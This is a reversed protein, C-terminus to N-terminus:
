LVRSVELGEKIARKADLESALKAGGILHVNVGAARLPEELERLSLQGACVVVHDVVLTRPEGAVTIHLGADDIREYTVEGLLHVQKKRLSQRHIWGTTKGLGAGLKGKKRQMLYLTRASPDPTPKELGGAHEYDLDVGWEDAFVEVNQSGREDGEHHVLFESVDFGIGGAGILAASKGVEVRRKLVDVYSVVKPHDIGEIRPVRPTVGTALIVEDFKGLLLDDVEVRTDLHLNVGTLDIRKRFYRLTEYFEEKGPIQKALNFQGGIEAAADYLHVEHGREAAVCAASLGAPGAGVVAIRKRQQTPGYGLITEHCALPNVLCSSIQGQFTHDLCAQNCAIGFQHVFGALSPCVNIEDARGERAKNVLEADALFPRAMSVM